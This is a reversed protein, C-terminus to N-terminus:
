ILKKLRSFKFEKKSINEYKDLNDIKIGILNLQNEQIMKNNKEKAFDLKLYLRKSKCVNLILNKFNEELACNKLAEGFDFKEFDLKMFLWSNIIDELKDLFFDDSPNKSNLYKSINLFNLYIQFLQKTSEYLQSHIKLIQNLYKITKKTVLKLDFTSTKKSNEDKLNFLNEYLSAKDKLHSIIQEVFSESLKSFDQCTQNIYEKSINSEEKIQKIVDYIEEDYVNTLGLYDEQKPEEVSANNNENIKM